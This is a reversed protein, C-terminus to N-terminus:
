KIVKELIKEREKRRKKYKKRKKIEIIDHAVYAFLFLLLKNQYKTIFLELQNIDIDLDALISEKYYNSVYGINNDCKNLSVDDYINIHYEDEEFDSYYNYDASSNDMFTTDVLTERDDIIVKNWAHDDGYLLLSDLGKRNALAQFIASYNICLGVKTNIVSSIPFINYYDSVLSSDTLQVIKSYDMNNVVYEAINDKIEEDNTGEINNSINDLKNINSLLNFPREFLKGKETLIDYTSKKLWIAASDDLYLRKINMNELLESNIVNSSEMINLVDLNIDKIDNIDFISGSSYFLNKLSDKNKPSIGNVKSLCIDLNKLNYPLRLVEDYCNSKILKLTSVSNPIYSSNIFNVNNFVIKDLNINHNIVKLDILCNSVKLVKLNTFYFLCRYEELTIGDLELREINRIHEITIDSNIDINNKKCIINRLNSNIPLDIKYDDSMNLLLNLEKNFSINNSNDDSTYSINNYVTKHTYKNGLAYTILGITTGILMINKQLKYKAM